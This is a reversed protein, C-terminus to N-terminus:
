LIYNDLVQEKLWKFAKKQNYKIGPRLLAEMDGAFDPNKEKEELNKLFEKKSPPKKDTSFRIYEKFCHIIEDYNLEHHQGAYSLDFLDRGKSRQYLARLKTGLLENLNYTRIRARGSFWESKIEFPFHAWELVNFHEKCNIELKLRMRIIEYESTFRYMARIGHGKNQTRRDEEFFNIVEGIREMIPKIPGPKIQVLDIDESYRSAPNLYLKHLATGGRFSLNERLFDDTFIEVLARSIILDQEVQYFQKWPAFEQWKAIHPKPIM